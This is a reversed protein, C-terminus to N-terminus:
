TFLLNKFAFQLLALQVKSASAPYNKKKFLWTTNKLLFSFLYYETCYMIYTAFLTHHNIRPGNPSHPFNQSPRHVIIRPNPKPRPILMPGFFPKNHVVERDLTPTSSYKSPLFSHFYFFFLSPTKASNKITYVSKWGVM